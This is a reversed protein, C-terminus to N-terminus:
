AEEEEKEPNVLVRKHMVAMGCDLCHWKDTEPDRVLRMPCTPNNVHTRKPDLTMVYMPM